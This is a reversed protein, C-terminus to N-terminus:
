ITWLKRLSTSVGVAGAQLSAIVDDKDLILGGTIVPIKSQEVILKTVKTLGGPLVEVADPQYKKISVMGSELNKTDLLFLRQITALGLKKAEQILSGKTTIIGTPQIQEQLFRLGSADNKLGQCLDIHVFVCKGKSLIEKVMQSLTSIDGNLIFYVQCPAEDLGRLDQPTSIAGIIPQDYIRELFM